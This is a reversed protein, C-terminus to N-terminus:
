RRPTVERNWFGLPFGNKEAMQKACMGGVKACVSGQTALSRLVMQTETHHLMAIVSHAISYMARLCSAVFLKAKLHSKKHGTEPGWSAQRPERRWPARHRDPALGSKRWVGTGTGTGSTRNVDKTLPTEIDISIMALAEILITPLPFPSRGDHSRLLGTNAGVSTARACVGCGM